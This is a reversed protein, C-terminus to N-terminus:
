LLGCVIELLLIAGHEKQVGHVGEYSCNVIRTLLLGGGLISACHFDIFVHIESTAKSSTNKEMSKNTLVLVVMSQFFM